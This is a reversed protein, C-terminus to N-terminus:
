ESVCYFWEFLGEKLHRAVFFEMLFAASLTYVDEVLVFEGNELANEWVFAM